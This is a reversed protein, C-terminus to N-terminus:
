KRSPHNKVIVVHISEKGRSNLSQSKNSSIRFQKYPEKNPKEKKKEKKRKQRVFLTSVFTNVTYEVQFRKSNFKACSRYPLAFNKWRRESKEVSSRDKKPSNTIWWSLLSSTDHYELFPQFFSVDRNKQEFNSINPKLYKLIWYITDECDYIVFNSKVQIMLKKARRIKDYTVLLPISYIFIHNIM